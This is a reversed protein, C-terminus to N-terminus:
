VNRAAGTPSTGDETYFYLSRMENIFINKLMDEVGLM